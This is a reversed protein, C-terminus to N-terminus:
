KIQFMGGLIREASAAELDEPVTEGTGFFVLPIKQYDSSINFISGFNLCKDLHTLIMGDLLERYTNIVRRNNIESHIASLCILVEVNKFSRRLGDIFNKVDNGERNLKKFDVFCNKGLEVAKRCESVVEPVGQVMVTKLGFMVETFKKEQSVDAVSKILISDNKLAVLKQCITTQGCSDDSILVTIIPGSEEGISSFKPMKTQVDGLMERLCFEFVVDVDSLESDSMEFMSKKIIKQIYKEQIDLSRLTTRLQYIGEPGRNEIRELNRALDFLKKELQDIKKQQNEFYDNEEPGFNIRSNEEERFVPTEVKPLSPEPKNERQDNKENLFDDLNLSHSRSNLTNEDRESFNTHGGGSANARNTTNVSRNLAVKGYSSDIRNERALNGNHGDIKKAVYESSNTYFIEKEDTSMVSDVRSKKTYNKESIAATIEIKKKKFTGKLGKNTITKLIIADPGLEHKISKLAEDLTDAEFKRVYM